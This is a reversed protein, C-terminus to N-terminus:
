GTVRGEGGAGGLAVGWPGVLGGVKSARPDIVVRVALEPALALGVADQLPVRLLFRDGQSADRSIWTPDLLSYQDLPLALYSPLGRGPVAEPEQTTPHLSATPRPPGPHPPTPHLWPFPHLPQTTTKASSTTPHGASPWLGGGTNGYAGHGPWCASAPQSPM